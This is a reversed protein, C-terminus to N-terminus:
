KWVQWWRRTQGRQDVNDAYQPRIAAILSPDRRCRQYSSWAIPGKDRRPENERANTAARVLGGLTRDWALEADDSSMGLATLQALIKEHALQATEGHFIVDVIDEVSKGAPLLISMDDTWGEPIKEM